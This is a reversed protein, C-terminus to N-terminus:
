SYDLEYGQVHSIWILSLFLGGWCCRSYFSTHQPWTGIACEDMGVADM